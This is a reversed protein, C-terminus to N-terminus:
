KEPRTNETLSTATAMMQNPFEIRLEKAGWKLPLYPLMFVGLERWAVPYKSDGFLL